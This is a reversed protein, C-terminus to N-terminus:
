MRKYLVAYAKKSVESISLRIPKCEDNTRFWLNTEKEKIDCIYHGRSEGTRTLTGQFEIVAIAEYGSVFGGADRISLNSLLHKLFNYIKGLISMM